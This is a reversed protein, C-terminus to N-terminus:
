DLEKMYIIKKIVYCMSFRDLKNLDPIIKFVRNNM